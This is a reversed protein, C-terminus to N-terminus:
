GGRSARKVLAVYKAKQTDTCRKTANRVSELSFWEIHEDLFDFVPQEDMRSVERLAWGVCTKAFREERQVLVHCCELLTGWRAEEKAMWLLGVVSSRARWLNDAFRWQAVLTSAEEGGGETMGRIVRSAFADTVGWGQIFGDDFLRALAPLDEVGIFRKAQVEEHLILVAALKHELAPLEFLSFAVQKAQLATMRSIANHAAWEHTAQQIAPMRLGLTPITGRMYNFITAQYTADSLAVLRRHLDYQLSTSNPSPDSDRRARKARISSARPIARLPISPPLQRSRTRM